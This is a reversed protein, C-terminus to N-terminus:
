MNSRLIPNDRIVALMMKGCELYDYCCCAILTSLFVLCFACTLFCMGTDGRSRPAGVGRVDRVILRGAVM